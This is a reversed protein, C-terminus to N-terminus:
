RYMHVWEFGDLACAESATTFTFPSFSYKDCEFRIDFCLSILNGHGYNNATDM